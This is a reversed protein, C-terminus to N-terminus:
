SPTLLAEKLEAMGAATIRPAEADTVKSCGGLKPEREEVEQRYCEGGGGPHSRLLAGRAGGGHNGPALCM